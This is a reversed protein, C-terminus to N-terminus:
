KAIVECDECTNIEKTHPNGSYVVDSGDEAVVKLFKTAHVEADSGLNLKIKCNEAILSEAFVNSGDIAFFETSECEGRMTIESNENVNCTINGAVLQTNLKSEGNIDFDANKMTGYIQAKSGRNLKCNINEVDLEFEGRSGDDLSITLEPLILVTDCWIESNEIAIISKLSVFTVYVDMTKFFRVYMSPYIKLIGDEIVTTIITDLNEDTRVNLRATDGPVLYISIGGEVIISSFTEIERTKEKVIENGAISQANINHSIFALYFLLTYILRKKM